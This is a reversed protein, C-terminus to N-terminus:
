EQKLIKKVALFQGSTKPMSALMADTYQGLTNIVEDTRLVNFRVGLSKTDRTAEAINKVASVYELISDIEANFVEVEQESLAIRSLNGLTRIEEKTM